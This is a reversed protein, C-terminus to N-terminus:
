KSSNTNEEICGMEGLSYNGTTTHVEAPGAMLDPVDEYEAPHGGPVEQAAPHGGGSWLFTDEGLIQIINSGKMEKIIGESGTPQLFM